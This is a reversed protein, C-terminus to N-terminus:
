MMEMVQIVQLSREVLNPRQHEAAHASIFKHRSECLSIDFVADSRRNQYENRKEKADAEM